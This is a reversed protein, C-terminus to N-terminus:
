SHTQAAAFVCICLCARAHPYAACKKSKKCALFCTPCVRVAHRVHIAVCVHLTYIHVYVHVISSEHISAFSQLSAFSVLAELWLKYVSVCDTQLFFIEHLLLHQWRASVEFQSDLSMSKNLFV